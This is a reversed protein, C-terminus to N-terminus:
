FKTIARQQTKLTPLFYTLVVLPYSTLDTVLSIDGHLIVNDSSCLWWGSHARDMPKGIARWIPRSSIKDLEFLRPFNKCFLEWFKCGTLSRLPGLCRTSILLSFYFSFASLTKSKIKLELWSFIKSIAAYLRIEISKVGPWSETYRM